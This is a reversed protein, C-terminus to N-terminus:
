SRNGTFNDSFWLKEPLNNYKRLILLLIWLVFKIEKAKFTKKAFKTLNWM